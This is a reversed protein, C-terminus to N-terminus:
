RMANLQLPLPKKLPLPLKRLRVLKGVKVRLPRWVVLLEGLAVRPLPSVL